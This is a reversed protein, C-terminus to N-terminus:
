AGGKEAMILFERNGDGGEIPSGTVGHVHWGQEDELWRDIRACVEKHLNGDKVIGGKGVNGKGVEFQPKILAILRAGPRVLDLAAPLGKQLSIFSLDSVILDPLPYFMDATLDRANLGERLDVRTDGAIEPAMQGHGVDVAYVQTAENALLVQTFGGTSAGLDLAICGGVDMRFHELAGVLKLAARSVWEGDEAELLTIEVDGPVSAATKQVVQGAVQVRGARIAAQARARSAVLGRDVLLRDLRTGM